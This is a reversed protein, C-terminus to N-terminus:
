EDKYCYCFEKCERCFVTVTLKEDWICDACVYLHDRGHSTCPKADELGRLAKELDARYLLSM